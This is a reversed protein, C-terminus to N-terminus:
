SGTEVPILPRVRRALAPRSAVRTLLRADATVLTAERSIALALYLCDYIPHRLDHAVELSARVLEKTIPVTEVPAEELDLWADSADARDLDGRRVKSALANAAEVWFLGPVILPQGLLLAFAEDSGVEDVVWKLGVSADVVLSTTAGPKDGSMEGMPSSSRATESRVGQRELGLALV